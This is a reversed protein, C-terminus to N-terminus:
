FDLIAAIIKARIAENRGQPAIGPAPILIVGKFFRMSQNLRAILFDDDGADM